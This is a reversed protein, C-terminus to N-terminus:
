WSGADIPWLCVRCQNRLATAHTAAPCLWQDAHSFFAGNFLLSLCWLALYLLWERIISHWNLIWRTHQKQMWSVHGAPRLILPMRRITYRVNSWSRRAFHVVTVSRHTRQIM